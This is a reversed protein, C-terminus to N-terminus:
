RRRVGRSVGGITEVHRVLGGIPAELVLVPIGNGAYSAEADLRADLLTERYWSRLWTHGDRKSSMLRYRM